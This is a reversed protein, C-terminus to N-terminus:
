SGFFARSLQRNLRSLGKKQNAPDAAAEAKAVKWCVMDAVTTLPLRYVRRSRLPKVTLFWTAGLQEVRVTARTKNAIREGNKTELKVVTPKSREYRQVM